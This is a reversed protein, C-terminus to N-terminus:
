NMVTPTSRANPASPGPECTLACRTATAPPMLASAPWCRMRTPASGAPRQGPLTLLLRRVSRMKSHWALPRMPRGPGRSLRTGALPLHQGENEIAELRTLDSLFQPYCWTRDPLSQERGPLLQLKGQLILTIIVPPYL